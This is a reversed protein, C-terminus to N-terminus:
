HSYHGQRVDLRLMTLSQEGNRVSKCHRSLVEPSRKFGGIDGFCGFLVMDFGKSGILINFMYLNYLIDFM